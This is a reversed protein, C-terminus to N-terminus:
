KGSLESGYTDGYKSIEANYVKIEPTITGDFKNSDKAKKHLDKLYEPFNDADLITKKAFGVKATKTPLPKTYDAAEPQKDEFFGKENAYERAQKETKFTNNGIATERKGVPSFTGDGNKQIRLFNDPRSKILTELAQNRAKRAAAEEAEKAAKAAEESAVPSEVPNSLDNNAGYFEAMNKGFGGAPPNIELGSSDTWKGTSQNFKPDDANNYNTM